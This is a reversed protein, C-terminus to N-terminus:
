DVDLRFVPVAFPGETRVCTQPSLKKGESTVQVGTSNGSARHQTTIPEKVYLPADKVEDVAFDTARM